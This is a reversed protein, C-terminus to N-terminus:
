DATIRAGRVVGEFHEGAIPEGTTPNLNDSSWTGTFRNGRRDLNIRVDMVFISIFNGDADWNWAMHRLKFSGLATRTWVGVCVNGLTPPLGRSLMMETGDSHFQQFSQDFLGPGEGFLFESNWLGVLSATAADGDDAAGQASPATLRAVPALFREKETTVCTARAEGAFLTCFCVISVVPVLKM